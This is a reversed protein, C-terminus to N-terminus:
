LVGFSLAQPEKLSVLREISQMEIRSPGPGGDLGILITM